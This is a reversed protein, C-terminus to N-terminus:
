SRAVKILFTRLFFLFLLCMIFTLLVLIVGQYDENVQNYSTNPGM